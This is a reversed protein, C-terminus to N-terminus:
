YLLSPITATRTTPTRPSRRTQRIISSPTSIQFFSFLLFSSFLSPISLIHLSSYLCSTPSPCKAPILPFDIFPLLIIGNTSHIFALFSSRWWHTRVNATYPFKHGNFSEPITSAHCPTNPIDIRIRSIIFLKCLSADHTWAWKWDGRASQEWQTWRVIDQTVSDSVNVKEYQRRCIPTLWYLVEPALPLLNRSPGTVERHSKWM